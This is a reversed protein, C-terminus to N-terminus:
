GGTFAKPFWAIAIPGGGLLDALRYTRGDTGALTFDPAADGPKLDMQTRGGRGTAMKFLGEITAAFTTAISRLGGVSSVLSKRDM